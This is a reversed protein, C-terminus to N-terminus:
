SSKGGDLKNIHPSLIELDIQSYILSIYSSSKCRILSLPVINRNMTAELYEILKSIPFGDDHVPIEQEKM